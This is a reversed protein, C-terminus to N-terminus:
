LEEWIIHSDWVHRGSCQAFVAISAGNALLQGEHRPVHFIVSLPLNSTTVAQVPTTPPITFQSVFIGSALKGPEDLCEPTGTPNSYKGVVAPVYITPRGTSGLSNAGHAEFGTVVLWGSGAESLQYLLPQANQVGARFVAM